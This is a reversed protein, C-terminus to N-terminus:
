WGYNGWQEPYYTWSRDGQDQQGAEAFDHMGTGFALPLVTPDPQEGANIGGVDVSGGSLLTQHQARLRVALDLYKQQLESTNVTQSDSNTTVERSFKAAIAEAVMSATWYVSNKNEWQVVLWEIEENTIFWETSDTDGVLFRIADKTSTAPDGSYSFSM